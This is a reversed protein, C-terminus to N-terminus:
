KVVLSASLTRRFAAFYKASSVFQHDAELENVVGLLVM